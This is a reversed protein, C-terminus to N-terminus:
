SIADEGAGVRKPCDSHSFILIRIHNDFDRSITSGGVKNEFMKARQSVIGRTIVPKPRETRELLEAINPKPEETLSPFEFKTWCMIFHSRKQKMGPSSNSSEASNNARWRNSDGWYGGDRKNCRNKMHKQAQFQRMMEFPRKPVSPFHLQTQSVLRLNKNAQFTREPKKPGPPYLTHGGPDNGSKNSEASSSSRFFPERPFALFEIGDASHISSHIFEYYTCASVDRQNLGGTSMLM